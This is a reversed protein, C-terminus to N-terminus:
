RIRSSGALSVDLCKFCRAAMKRAIGSAIKAGLTALHGKLRAEVHYCVHTGESVAALRVRSAVSAEEVSQGFYLTYSQPRVADRLHVRGRYRRKAGGLRLALEAELTTEDRWEIKECGPICHVLLETDYLAAWVAEPSAHLLVEGKLDVDRNM